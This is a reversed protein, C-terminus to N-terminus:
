LFHFKGNNGIPTIYPNIIFQDISESRLLGVIYAIIYADLNIDYVDTWNIQHGYKSYFVVM